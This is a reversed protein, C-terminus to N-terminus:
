YYIDMLYDILQTEKDDLLDYFNDIEKKIKTNSSLVNFDDLNLATSNTKVNIRINFYKGNIGMYNISIKDSSFENIKLSSKLNKNIAFSVSEKNGNFGLNTDKKVDLELEGMFNNLYKFVNFQLDYKDDYKYLYAETFGDVELDIGVMNYKKDTYINFVINDSKINNLKNEIVEIVESNDVDLVNAFANILEDDKKVEKIFDKILERKIYRDIIFSNEIVDVETANITIVQNSVQFYKDEVIRNFIDNSENIIYKLDDNKSGIMFLDRFVSDTAETRILKNSTSYKMFYNNNNKVNYIGYGSDLYIYEMIYNDKNYFSVGFKEDDLVKYKNINTDISFEYISGYSDNLKDLYNIASDSTYKVAHKFINIPKTKNKNDLFSKGLYFVGLGVIGLVIIWILTKVIGRKIKTKTKVPKFARTIYIDDDFMEEIAQVKDIDIENKKTEKKKKTKKVEKQQEKEEVVDEKEKVEEKIAEIAVTKEIEKKAEKVVEAEKVEEVKESEKEKKTTKKEEKEEKVKRTRTKTKGKNLEEELFKDVESVVDENKEVEKKKM